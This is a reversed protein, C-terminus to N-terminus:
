SKFIPSIARESEVRLESTIVYARADANLVQTGNGLEEHEHRDWHCHGCIVLCNPLGELEQRILKNGNRDAECGAPGEHLIIIDPSEQAVRKLANLFGGENRRFPKAPNGIVGGVGGIRIGDIAALNGDLYYLNPTSLFNDTPLVDPGFSDHNGPTGAVWRFRDQFCKWVDRVDGKGGRKGLGEAVYLDGALLVGITDASPIEGLEALVHFEEAVLEGLLRCKIDQKSWVPERGQLDSMVLLAGLEAPIGTAHAQVIPFSGSAVGGGQM